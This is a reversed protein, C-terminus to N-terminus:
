TGCGPVAAAVAVLASLRVPEGFTLADPHFFGLRRRRHRGAPLARAGLVRYLEALIQGHQHGPAACVRLAVDLPVARAPGVVLDHGTLRYGELAQGVADLLAPSPTGTGRADVAVHAERVSGTWRLEAAARRVRAARLGARRLGRRHGGAAPDAAPRAPSAACRSSPSPATGGVAPLPNRVRGGAAARGRRRRRRRSGPVAGPPQHGRRRRERRAAAWGTASRSGRAPRRRPGYGGDGFRLALRGDDTLEGVLHRDRPRQRASRSAAGVGARRGGPARGTPIGPTMLHSRTCGCRRSRGARTPGCPPPPVTCRRTRRTCGEAYPRGWSHRIEWVVRADLVTGARARATLVALRRTKGLLLRDGRHLLERLARVPHRRPECRELARAGFLVTLEAIEEESLGDGDRASRWLEVLRERM